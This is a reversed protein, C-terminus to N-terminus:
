VSVGLDFLTMQDEHTRHALRDNKRRRHVRFYEATNVRIIEPLQSLDTGKVSRFSLVLINFTDQSMALRGDAWIYDRGELFDRLVAEKVQSKNVIGTVDHLRELTCPFSDLAEHTEELAKELQAIRDALDTELELPKRDKAILIASSQRLQQSFPCNAMYALYFLGVFDTVPTTKTQSEGPFKISASVLISDQDQNQFNKWVDYPNKRELIERLFDFISHKGECSRIRGEAIASEVQGVLQDLIRRHLSVGFSNLREQYAVINEAM